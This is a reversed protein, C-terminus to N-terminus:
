QHDENRTNTILVVLASRQQSDIPDAEISIVLYAIVQFIKKFMLSHPNFLTRIKVQRKAGCFCEYFLSM